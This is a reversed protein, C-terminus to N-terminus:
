RDSTYKCRDGLEEGYKRRYWSKKEPNACALRIDDMQQKVSEVFVQTALRADVTQTLYNDASGDGFKENFSTKTQPNDLLYEIDPLLPLPLGDDQSYRRTPVHSAISCTQQPQFDTALVLRRFLGPKSENFAALRIGDGRPVYAQIVLEGSIPMNPDVLLLDDDLLLYGKEPDSSINIIAGTQPDTCKMEWYSAHAAEVTVSAGAVLAANLVIARILPIRKMKPEEKM